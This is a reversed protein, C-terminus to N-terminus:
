WRVYRKSAHDYKQKSSKSNNRPAFSVCSMGLHTPSKATEWTLRTVERYTACVELNNWGKSTKTFYCLDRSKCCGPQSVNGLRSLLSKTGRCCWWIGRGWHLPLSCKRLHCLEEHPSSRLCFSPIESHVSLLACLLSWPSSSEKGSPSTQAESSNRRQLSGASFSPSCLRDKRWKRVSELICM